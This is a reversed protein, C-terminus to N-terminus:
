CEVSHYSPSYFWQPSSLSVREKVRFLVLANFVDMVNEANRRKRRRIRRGDSYRVFSHTFPMVLTSMVLLYNSNPAGWRSGVLKKKLEFYKDELEEKGTATACSRQPTHFRYLWLVARSQGWQMGKYRLPWRLATQIHCNELKKTRQKDTLRWKCHHQKKCIAM